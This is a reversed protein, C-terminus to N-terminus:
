RTPFSRQVYKRAGFAALRAVMKQTHIFRPRVPADALRRSRQRVKKVFGGSSFGLGFGAEAEFDQFAYLAGPMRRAPAEVGVTRLVVDARDRIDRDAALPNAQLM